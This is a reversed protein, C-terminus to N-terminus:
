PAGPDVTQVVAFSATADTASELRLAWPFHAIVRLEGEQFGYGADEVREAPAGIGHRWVRVRCKVFGYGM